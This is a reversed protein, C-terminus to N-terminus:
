GGTSKSGSESYNGTAVIDEINLDKIQQILLRRIFSKLGKIDMSFGDQSVDKTFKGSSLEKDFEKEWNEEVM